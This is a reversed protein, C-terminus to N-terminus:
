EKGLYEPGNPNYFKRNGKSSYHPRTGSGLDVPGGKPANNGIFRKLLGAAGKAGFAMGLLAALEHTIRIGNDIAWQWAQMSTTFEAQSAEASQKRVNERALNIQEQTLSLGLRQAEIENSKLALDVLFMYTAQAAQKAREREQDTKFESQKSQEEASKTGFVAQKYEELAKKANQKIISVNDSKVCEDVYNQIKKSIVNQAILEANAKNLAERSEIEGVSAESAKAEANNKRTQSMALMANIFNSGSDLPSTGVSARGQPVSPAATAGLTGSASGSSGDYMLAPNLGADELRARQAAPNDWERADALQRQYQEVQRAYANQAAKENLDFELQARKQDYKWQRRATLGGFLLSGVGGALGSAASQGLSDFFKGM